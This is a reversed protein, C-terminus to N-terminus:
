GVTERQTDMNLVCGANKRRVIQRGMERCYSKGSYVKRDLKCYKGPIDENTVDIVCEKGQIRRLFKRRKSAL